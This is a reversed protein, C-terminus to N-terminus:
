AGEDGGMGSAIGETRNFLRADFLGEGGSAGRGVPLGLAIKESVDREEEGGGADRRPRKAGGPGGAPAEARLERERERRREERLRDREARGSGGAAEEEEAAGPRGRAHQAQREGEAEMRAFDEPGLGRAAGGPGRVPRGGAEAAAAEEEDSGEYAEGLLGGPGASVAAAAASPLLARGAAAGGGGQGEDLEERGFHQQQQPGQGAEAAGLGQPPLAAIGAREMRAKAAMERLAAEKGEKERIALRKSIAARTEVELRAKREAILLSESLKAFGDNITPELLSRGDAAMRKDLPVIYGRANQWNSVCAPVQWAVQDAATLKRPPSHMVPVPADPPGAPAKQHKHKAPAMPDLPAEVMRVIRQAVAPNYGQTDAAPTYRIYKSQEARALASPPIYGPKSTATQHDVIRQLAAATAAAAAAEEAATPRARVLGAEGQREVLDGFRSHVKAKDAHQATVIADFRTSGTQADVTVPVIATSM